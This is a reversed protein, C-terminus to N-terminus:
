GHVPFARALRLFDAAALHEARREPAKRLVELAKGSASPGLAKRLLGGLQKRRESFLLKVWHRYAPYEARTGLPETRELHLVRSTVEPPPWFAGPLIKRGRRPAAWYRVLLTVPGYAPQGPGAAIRDAVEGQVTVAARIWQLRSECFTVILPTAIGYPLNSVWLLPGMSELQSIVSSNLRVRSELVDACCYSINTFDQLEGRAFELLQPDKEVTLVRGAKLALQRTLTGPGTGVELVSDGEGVGAEAVVSALLRPDQLYHQGFSKKPFLGASQLRERLTPSDTNGSM